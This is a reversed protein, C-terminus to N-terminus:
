IMEKEMLIGDIGNYYNLRIARELFGYKKYLYIAIDNDKRVELTINKLNMKTAYDILYKLLSSAIKKNRYDPMVYLNDIELRDYIYEFSLYGMLKDDNIFLLYRIFPNTKFEYSIKDIDLKNIFEDEINEILIIM